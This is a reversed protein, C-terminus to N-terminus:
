INKVAGLLPVVSLLDSDNIIFLYFIYANNIAAFMEGGGRNKRMVLPKRMAPKANPLALLSWDTRLLYMLNIRYRQKYVVIGEKNNNRPPSYTCVARRSIFDLLPLAIV